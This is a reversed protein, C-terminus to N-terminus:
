FHHMGILEFEGEAVHTVGTGLTYCLLPIKGERYIVGVEEKSRAIKFYPCRKQLESILDEMISIGIGTNGGNGEVILILEYIQPQVGAGVKELLGAITTDITDLILAINKESGGSPILQAEIVINNPDKRAPTGFIKLNMKLHPFICILRKLANPNHPVENSHM